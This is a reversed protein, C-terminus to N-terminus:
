LFVKVSTLNQLKSFAETAEKGNTMEVIQGDKVVLCGPAFFQLDHPSSSHIINGYFAQM